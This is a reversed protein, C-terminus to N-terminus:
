KVVCGRTSKCKLTAATLASNASALRARAKQLAASADKLEAKAAAANAKATDYRMQANPKVTILTRSAPTRDCTLLVEDTGVSNGTVELVGNAPRSKFVRAGIGLSPAAGDHCLYTIKASGGVELALTLPTLTGTPPSVLTLQMTQAPKGDCLLALETTGKSIGTIGVKIMPRAYGVSTTISDTASTSTVTTQQNATSGVEVRM